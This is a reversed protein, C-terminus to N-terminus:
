PKAHIKSSKWQNELPNGHNKMSKRLLKLRKELIKSTKAPHEFGEAELGQGYSEGSCASAYVKSTCSPWTSSMPVSPM